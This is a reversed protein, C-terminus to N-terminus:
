KVVGVRYPGEEALVDYGDEDGVILLNKGSKENVWANVVEGVFLTHDGTEIQNVVKCEFNALCNKILPSKISYAALKELGCKEFRDVKEGQKGCILSEEALDSGPVAIVFEQSESICKHMYRDHGVAIAFMIPSFSTRMKWGVTIVHPLGDSDVSTVLVVREPTRWVDMAEIFTTKKMM